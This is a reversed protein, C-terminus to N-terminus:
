ITGVNLNITGSGNNSNTSGLNINIIQSQKLITKDNNIIKGSGIFKM